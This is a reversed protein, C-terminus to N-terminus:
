KRSPPPAGALKVQPRRQGSHRVTERSSILLLFIRSPVAIAFMPRRPKTFPAVKPASANV